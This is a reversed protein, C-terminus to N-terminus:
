RNEWAPTFTIGCLNKWIPTFSSRSLAIITIPHKEQRRATHRQHGTGHGPRRHPRRKRSGAHVSSGMWLVLEHPAYPGQNLIFHLAQSQFEQTGLVGVEYKMPARKKIRLHAGVPSFIDRELILLLLSAMDKFHLPKATDLWYPYCYPVLIFEYKVPRNERNASM